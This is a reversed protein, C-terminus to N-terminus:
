EVCDIGWIKVSALLPPQSYATRGPLTCPKFTIVRLSSLATFMTTKLGGALRLMVYLILTM